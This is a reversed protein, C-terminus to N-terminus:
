TAPEVVQRVNVAALFTARLETGEIKGALTYIIGAAEARVAKAKVNDGAAQYLEALKVLVPWREGPLDIDTALAYAGELHAIAQKQDGDWQAMVARCRRVPILFRPNNNGYDPNTVLREFHHADERALAHDGGRLLAEIEYWRSLGLYLSDAPRAALAQRAHNHAATWDGALAYGACFEAHIMEAFPQTPMAEDATLAALGAAQAAELDLLARKVKASIALAYPLLPVIQHDRALQVAQEILSLAEVYDGADVLGESLHLTATVQGWPNQIERTIALAQRALAIGVQTQGLHTHANGMLGLCDAEMARNSLGAYLTAAEAAHHATQQWQGVDTYGLALVNHSRAILEPLALERALELARAGHALTAQPQWDYVGLQALNWETEALGAKDGHSEALQQAEQLLTRSLALDFDSQAAITALRNLAVCAIDYQNTRRALDLLAQYTDRAAAMQSVLEYARGLQLYLHHLNPIPSQPNASTGDPIPSQLNSVPSKTLNHAQEYHTIADRVAFLIMAADGAALSYRFAAAFHRAALAHHALEAAPAGSGELVALARRHLIRRRADGAETYAVDRIKDHSFLYFSEEGHTERAPVHQWLRRALLEDVAPLAEDEDLGAVRCVQEFTFNQGLVAGAALTALANPALQALRVRIIDRIGPPMVNGLRDLTVEPIYPRFRGDADAQLLLLDQELLWKLTEAIFFPQGATEKFLWRSFPATIPESKGPELLTQVLQDTDGATLPALSLRTLVCDRGLAALWTALGTNTHLTESRIALLILAPTASEQWRRALYHLLDLTAADAWQVDDIFFLLPKHAALGLGLRAVAELLRTRAVAEDGAPLPLDPYRERLEPLLRALEALWVDALLDEPANERELRERWAEAIPQYPLRGGTEFARGRVVDAGAAAAWASFEAALRSKGLGAEGELSVVQPRGNQAAHYLEILKVYEPSRGILPIDLDRPTVPQYIARAITIPQAIAVALAATEPSPEAGFEAALMARCADYARQAAERNGSALHLQMLQRFILENLPNIALWRNLTALAGGTDGNAQQWQLLRHCVQEIQRHWHERQRSAWHDFEPADSLSFGTLFDGRYLDIAAQLLVTDPTASRGAHVAATVRDLDLESDAKLDFGLAEREILLYHTARDDLVQRLYALTNRLAARGQGTTSEPWFLATLTDRTQVRGTVVLYVLLALTKRTPWKVPRGHLHLEPNGLFHLQLQPM